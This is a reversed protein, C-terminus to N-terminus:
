LAIKDAIASVGENEYEEITGEDCHRSLEADLPLGGLFPIFLSAAIEKGKERGFPHITKGCHPCVLYSMNEVLGLITKKLQYVMNVAKKVVLLALDQPSSVIIVGDLPIAQLVTLPIDGTGPPLDLLLVDPDDWAVEEWFEQIAKSLLPGRWIVPQEPKELMLNVSIVEIGLKDTRVPLIGPNIAEPRKGLVGFMTPISPGTLDADLVGVKKGRRALECALLATVSSKGVGGKGSMVAIVKGIKSYRSM